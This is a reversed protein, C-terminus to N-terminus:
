RQSTGRMHVSFECMVLQVLVITHILGLLLCPAVIKLHYDIDDLTATIITTLVKEREDAKFGFQKLTHIVSEDPRSLLWETSRILGTPVVQRAM